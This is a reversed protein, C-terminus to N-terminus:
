PRTSTLLMLLAVFILTDGHRIGIADLILGVALLLLSVPLKGAPSSLGRFAIKPHRSGM